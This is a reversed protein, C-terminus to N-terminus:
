SLASYINDLETAAELIGCKLANDIYTSWTFAMFFLEKQAAIDNIKRCKISYRSTLPGGSPGKLETWM